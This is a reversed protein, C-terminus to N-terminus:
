LTAAPAVRVPAPRDGAGLALAEALRAVGQEIASPDVTVFSLRLRNRPAHDADPYFAIGPVYAVGQAVARALSEMTDLGPPGELWFFMGGQPTAWRWGAGLHAALARQMADRRERYRARVVPLHEDLFGTRIVEHVLRQNFGPTHLDCAQKAQLLRAGLAPPAVVYGLRLGPVLVKSFSGLLVTGEPWRGALPPPPPEDYWLEGYPDDEVLPVGADRAADALALRRAAPVCGGGPNQYNPLLYAFRAGRAAALAGPLPGRADGKLEVLRPEYPAFAQLAGLYTPSEVAVASGADILVKGVLDLGQQSGTTILVQSASVPLGKAALHAAVWERLPDHGESPAYQLAQHPTDRLVRDAAERLVTVPFLEAAPLGGALSIVGPRQTLKLIERIISPNMRAARRAMVFPQAADADPTPGPTPEASM